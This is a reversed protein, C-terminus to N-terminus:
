VAATLPEFPLSVLYGREEAWRLAIADISALSGPIAQLIEVERGTLIGCWGYVVFRPLDLYRDALRNLSEIDPRKVLWGKLWKDVTTASVEMVAAAQRLSHGRREMEAALAKSLEEM